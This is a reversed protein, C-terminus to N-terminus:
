YLAQIADRAITVNASLQTSSIFRTSNTKVRPDSAGNLQMTAAAGNAFGSGTIAVDLTTDAPASSPAAATVTPGSAAKGLRADTPALRGTDTPTACSGGIVGVVLIISLWFLRRLLM